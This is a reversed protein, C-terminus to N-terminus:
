QAHDAETGEDGDRRTPLGQRGRELGRQFSGFVARMEEADVEREPTADRAPPEDRLPAALSAQRVRRP